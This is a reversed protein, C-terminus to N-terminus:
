PMQAIDAYLAVLVKENANYKLLKLWVPVFQAIIADESAVNGNAIAFALESIALINEDSADPLERLIVELIANLRHSVQERVDRRMLPLRDQLISLTPQWQLSVLLLGTLSTSANESIKSLSGSVYQMGKTATAAAVDVMEVAPLVDLSTRLCQAVASKGAKKSKGPSVSGGETLSVEELLGEALVKLLPADATSPQVSQLVRQFFHMFATVLASVRAAREEESLSPSCFDAVSRHNRQQYSV